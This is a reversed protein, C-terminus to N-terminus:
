RAGPQERTLIRFVPVAAMKLGKEFASQVDLMAADYGAQVMAARFEPEGHHRPDNFLSNGLKFMTIAAGEVSRDRQQDSKGLNQRGISWGAMFDAHPEMQWPGDPRMRDKFQLIHGFEHAMIIDIVQYPSHRLIGIEERPINPFHKIQYDVLALGLMVTGDPGDPLLVDPTALANPESQDDYFCLGPRVAFEKVLFEGARRFARDVNENIGSSTRM